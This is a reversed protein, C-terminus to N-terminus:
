NNLKSLFTGSFELFSNIAEQEVKCMHVLDQWQGDCARHLELIFDFIANGEASTQRLIIRSGHWAARSLYHAFLKDRQSLGNFVELIGLQNITTGSPLQQSSAM